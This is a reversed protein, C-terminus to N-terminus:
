FHIEIFIGIAIKLDNTPSERLKTVQEEIAERALNEIAALDGPSLQYAAVATEKDTFLLERFDPDTLARSLLETLGAPQQSTPPQTSM